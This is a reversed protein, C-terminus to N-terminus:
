RGVPKYGLANLRKVIDADTEPPKIKNKENTIAKLKNNLSEYAIQSNKLEQDKKISQKNLESLKQEYKQEIQKQIVSLSDPSPYNRGIFFAFIICAVMLIGSGIILKNDGFFATIKDKNIYSDL